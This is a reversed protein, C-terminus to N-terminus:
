PISTENGLKIKIGCSANFPDMDGMIANLTSYGDVVLFDSHLVRKTAHVTLRIVRVLMLRESNIAVLPQM